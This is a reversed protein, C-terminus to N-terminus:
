FLIIHYGICVSFLGSIGEAIPTAVSVAQAVEEEKVAEGSVGGGGDDDATPPDVTGCETPDVVPPSCLEKSNEAQTSKESASGNDVQFEILFSRNEIPFISDKFFIGFVLVLLLPLSDFRRRVKQRKPSTSKDESSSSRKSNNGSISGSRRTSVM